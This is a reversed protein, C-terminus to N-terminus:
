STSSPYRVLACVMLASDTAVSNVNERYRPNTPFLHIQQGGASQTLLVIQEDGMPDGAGIPMQWAPGFFRGMDPHM